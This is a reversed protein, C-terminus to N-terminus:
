VRVAAVPEALARAAKVARTLTAVDYAGQHRKGNIFFSPTGAVGSADASAVDEAVRGAYEHRDVEDWFRDMDLGIQEAYRGLDEPLLDDQNSLMLDHMEWFKGQAAAAEAAEAAMQTNPHVDNLPLNRWVYRLDDGFSSLLERVVTEAQGCYPCEYDGYEILTVPADQAGRIHDRKPNVDDALDVLGDPRVRRAEPRRRIAAFTAWSLLTALIAAALVGVKAEELARGHFAKSAILISVTFGIASVASNGAILPWSLQRPVGRLTRFALYIAACGGLPKGVVYGAVIGLTIPSTVADSILGGDISIGANALAFLPVVVFSSWPHFAYQLRDNPSIAAAV